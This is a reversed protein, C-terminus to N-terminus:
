ALVLNVSGSTLTVASFVVDQGSIITGAKLTGATNAIYNSKVDTGAVKLNSIVTDELVVLMSFDITKLTTNNVIFTGKKGVVKDLSTASVLLEGQGSVEATYGKPNKITVEGNPM